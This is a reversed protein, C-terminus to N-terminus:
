IHILSLILYLDAHTGLEKVSTRVADLVAGYGDSLWRGEAEPWVKSTIHIEDRPIGSDRVARGVDAENGVYFFIPGGPKHWKDYVFYRQKFTTGPNASFSFHDM